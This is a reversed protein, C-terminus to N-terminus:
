ENIAGPGDAYYSTGNYSFSQTNCESATTGITMAAIFSAPWVFAHSGSGDQCILFTYRLGSIPNSVSSSSVDGTLTITQLGGLNLNFTPTASYTVTNKGILATYLVGSDQLGNGGCGIIFDSLALNGGCKKVNGGGPQASPTNDQTYSLSSTGVATIQTTLLWSTTALTGGQIVSIDGTYNINTTTNYNVARTLVYPAGGTGLTTLTYVGNQLAAAQNKVLVRDNLLAAYGDVSLAGNTSATLTAGVGATGNAYTPTNSLVAITAAQVSDAPNISALAAAVYSTNADKTTADGTSRTPVEVTTAGSLDVDGSRITVNGTQAFASVALLFGLIRLM